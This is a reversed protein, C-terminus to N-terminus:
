FDDFGNNRRDLFLFALVQHRKIEPFYFLRNSIKKDDTFGATLGLDPRNCIMYLVLDPIKAPFFWKVMFAGLVQVPHQNIIHIHHHMYHQRFVPFKVPQLFHPTIGGYLFM